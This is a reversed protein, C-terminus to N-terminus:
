VEEIRGSRSPFPIVDAGRMELAPLPSVGMVLTLTQVHALVRATTMANATAVATTYNARATELQTVVDQLQAGHRKASFYRKFRSKREAIIDELDKNLAAIDEALTSIADHHEVTIPSGQATGRRLSAALGDVRKYLDRIQKKNGSATDAYTAFFLLGSAASKLPPFADSSQVVAELAFLLADKAITGSVALRNSGASTSSARIEPGPTVIIWTLRALEEGPNKHKLPKNGTALGEMILAAWHLQNLIDPVFETRQQMYTSALPLIADMTAVMAALLAEIRPHYSQSDLSHKYVTYICKQILYPEIYFSDIKPAKLPRIFELLSWLQCLVTHFSSATYGTSPSRAVRLDVPANHHQDEVNNDMYGDFDREGEDDPLQITSLCLTCYCDSNTRLTLEPEALLHAVPLCTGYSVNSDPSHMTIKIISREFCELHLVENWQVTGRLSGKGEEAYSSCIPYEFRNPSIYQFYVRYSSRLVSDGLLAKAQPLGRCGELDICLKVRKGLPYLLGAGAARLGFVPSPSTSPNTM